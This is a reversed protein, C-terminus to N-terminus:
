LRLDIGAFTERMDSMQRFLRYCTEDQLEVFPVPIQEVDVFYQEQRTADIAVSLTLFGSMLLLDQERSMDDALHQRAIRLNQQPTRQPNENALQAIKEDVHQMIHRKVVQDEEFADCRYQRITKGLVRNIDHSTMIDVTYQYRKRPCSMLCRM